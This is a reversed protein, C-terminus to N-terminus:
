WVLLNGTLLRLILWYNCYPLRPDKVQGLPKKAVGNVTATGAM